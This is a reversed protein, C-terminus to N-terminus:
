TKEGGEKRLYLERRLSADKKRQEFTLDPKLYVDQYTDDDKLRRANTLIMRKAEKNKLKVKVLNGKAAQIKEAKEIETSNVDLKRQFLDGVAETIRSPTSTDEIGPLNRIVM